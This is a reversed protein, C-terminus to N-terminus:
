WCTFGVSGNGLILILVQPCINASTTSSLLVNSLLSTSVSLHQFSPLSLTMHSVSLFFSHTHSKPTSRHTRARTGPHTHKSLSLSVSLSLSLSLSAVLIHRLLSLYRPLVAFLPLIRKACFKPFHFNNSQAFFLFCVHPSQKSQAFWMEFYNKEVLHKRGNYRLNNPCNRTTMHSASYANVLLDQTQHRRSDGRNHVQLKFIQECFSLLTISLGLM